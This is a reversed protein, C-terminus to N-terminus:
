SILLELGYVEALHQVVFFEHKFQVCFINAYSVEVQSTSEEPNNCLPYHYNRVSTEPCGKFGPFGSSPVSIRYSVLSGAPVLTRNGVHVLPKRNKLSELRATPLDM